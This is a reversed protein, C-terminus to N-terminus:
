DRAVASYLEIIQFHIAIKRDFLSNKNCFRGNRFLYFFFEDTEACQVDKMGVQGGKSPHGPQQNILVLYFYCPKCTPSKAPGCEQLSPIDKHDVM